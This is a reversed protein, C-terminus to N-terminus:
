VPGKREHKAALRILADVQDYHAVVSSALADVIGPLRDLREDITM